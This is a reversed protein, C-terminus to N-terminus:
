YHMTRTFSLLPQFTRNNVANHEELCTTYKSTAQLKLGLSKIILKMWSPFVDIFKVELIFKKPISYKIHNESFLDDLEPRISSRLNKDFTIRLSHDYKGFFAERDYIVLVLPHLCSKHVHFLFRKSDAVANRFGDLAIIYKDSDGTTMLRKLNQFTVPARNKFIQKENKRKIELFVTNGPDYENYGRIRIKKRIKLGDEKEHFYDYRPSDFYISRVTYGTPGGENMYSDIMVYPEILKRLRPLLERPVQYKYEFKKM